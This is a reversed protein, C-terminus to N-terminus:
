RGRLPPPPRLGTNLVPFQCVDVALAALSGVWLSREQENRTHCACHWARSLM